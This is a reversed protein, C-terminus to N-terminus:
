VRMLTYVCHSLVWIVCRFSLSFMKNFIAVHMEKKWKQKIWKEGVFGPWSHEVCVTGWQELLNAITTSRETLLVRLVRVHSSLRSSVHRGSILGSYRHCMYLHWRAEGSTLEDVASVRNAVILPLTYRLWLNPWILLKIKSMCDAVKTSTMVMHCCIYGFCTCSFGLGPEKHHDRRGGLIVSGLHSGAPVKLIIKSPGLRLKSFLWNQQQRPLWERRCKM